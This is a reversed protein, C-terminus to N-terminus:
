VPTTSKRQHTVRPAGIAWVEWHGHEQATVECPPQSVLGTVSLVEDLKICASAQLKNEQFLRKLVGSGGHSIAQSGEWLLSM